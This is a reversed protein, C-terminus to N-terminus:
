LRGGSGSVPGIEDVRRGSGGQGEMEGGTVVRVGEEREGSKEGNGALVPARAAASPKSEAGALGYWIITAVGLLGSIVSFVLAVIGRATFGAPLPKPPANQGSLDLLNVTNGAANGM